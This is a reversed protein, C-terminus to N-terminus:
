ASRSGMRRLLIYVIAAGAAQLIGFLLSLAGYGLAGKLLYMGVETLWEQVLWERGGATFSYVDHTPIGSELILQGNRLHWWVDPDTPAAFTVLGVFAVLLAALLTYRHLGRQALGLTLPKGLALPQESTARSM